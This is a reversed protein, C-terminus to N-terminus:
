RACQACGGCCEDEHELRQMIGCTEGTRGGGCRQRLEELHGRLHELSLIRESVNRIQADILGTVWTCDRRPNDRFALLRRLADPRMGHKRCHLIFELREQDDAGYLRYNGSSREPAALLGEKEYYRITVVKCGTKKALDGIKM